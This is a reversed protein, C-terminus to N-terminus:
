IFYLITTPLPFGCSTLKANSASNFLKSSTLTLKLFPCDATAVSITVGKDTCCNVVSSIFLLGPPLKSTDLTTCVKGPTPTLLPTPSLFSIM